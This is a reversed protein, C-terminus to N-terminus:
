KLQNVFDLIGAEIEHSIQLKINMADMVVKIKAGDTLPNLVKLKETAEERVEDRYSKEVARVHALKDAVFEHPIIGLLRFLKKM